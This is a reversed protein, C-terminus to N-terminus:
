CGSHRVKDDTRFCRQLVRVVMNLGLRIGQKIDRSETWTPAGEKRDLLGQSLMAHLVRDNIKEQDLHLIESSRISWGWVQDEPSCDSLVDQDWRLLTDPGTGMSIKGKLMQNM